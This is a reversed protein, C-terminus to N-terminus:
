KGKQGAKQERAEKTKQEKNEKQTLTLGIRKAM